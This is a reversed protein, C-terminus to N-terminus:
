EYRISMSLRRHEAMRWSLNHPSAQRDEACPSGDELGGVEGYVDQSQASGSM